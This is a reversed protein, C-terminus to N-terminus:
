LKLPSYNEEEMIYPCIMVEKLTPKEKYQM